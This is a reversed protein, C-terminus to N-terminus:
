KIKEETLRISQEVRYKARKFSEKSCNLDFDEDRMFDCAERLGTILANLLLVIMALPLLFIHAILWIFYNSVTLLVLLKLPNIFKITM